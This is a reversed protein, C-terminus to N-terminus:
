KRRIKNTVWCQMKGGITQCKKMALAADLAGQRYRRNNPECNVAERYSQHATEYKRLKMLIHGNLEFWDGDKQDARHLQRLAGEFNGQDILRKAFHKAEDGAITNFGVQRRSAIKLADEYALNLKILKEQASKQDSINTFQDPHCAKVQQRYATRVAQADANGPVGLVEFPNAHLM